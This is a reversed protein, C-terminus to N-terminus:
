VSDPRYTDGYYFKIKNHIFPKSRKIIKKKISFSDEPIFPQFNMMESHTKIPVIRFDVVGNVTCKIQAIFSDRDDPFRNGGFSFNGLSYFIIGDKYQEIGQIVHTHHMLVVDAGSDIALRATIKQTDSPYHDYDIGAHISVVIIDAYKFAQQIEKKMIESHYAKMIVPYNPDRRAKKYYKYSFVQGYGLFATKIKKKTIIKFSADKDNFGGGCYQINHSNLAKLTEYAGKAYYDFIHNNAVNVIDINGKNLCAAFRPNAKFSFEKPYKNDSNTFAGELNTITIDSELHIHKIKEYPYNIAAEFGKNKEIELLKKEVHRGFTSDGSASIWIYNQSIKKPQIHPTLSVCALSFLSITICYILIFIYKNFM